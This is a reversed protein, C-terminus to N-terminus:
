PNEPEVDTQISTRESEASTVIRVRVTSANRQFEVEEVNTLLVTDTAPDTVPDVALATTTRDVHQKLTTGDRYIYAAGQWLPQGYTPQIADTEIVFAGAADRASVFGIACRTCLTPVGGVLMWDYVATGAPSSSTERMAQAVNDIAVRVEQQLDSRVKGQESRKVTLVFFGYIGGLVTSLIAMATVVELLTM